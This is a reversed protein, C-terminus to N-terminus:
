IQIYIMSLPMKKVRIFYFIHTVMSASLFHGIIERSLRAEFCFVLTGYTRAVSHRLFNNATLILLAIRYFSM